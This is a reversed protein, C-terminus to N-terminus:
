PQESPFKSKGPSPLLNLATIVEKTYVGESALQIMNLKCMRLAFLKTWYEIVQRTYNNYNSHRYADKLQQKHASKGSETSYAGIARLWEVHTNYYVPMHM